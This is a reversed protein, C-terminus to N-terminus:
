KWEDPWNEYILGAKELEAAVKFLFEVTFKEAEECSFVGTPRPHWCMSASGVVEFADHYIKSPVRFCMPRKRPEMALAEEKSYIIATKGM